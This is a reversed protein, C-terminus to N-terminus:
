YYAICLSAVVSMKYTILYLAFIVTCMIYLIIAVCRTTKNNSEASMRGDDM